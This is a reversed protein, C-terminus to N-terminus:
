NVLADCEACGDYEYSVWVDDGDFSYGRQTAHTTKQCTDCWDFVPRMLHITIGRTDHM